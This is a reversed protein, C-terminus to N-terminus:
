RTTGTKADGDKLALDDNADSPLNAVVIEYRERLREYARRNAQERQESLYDGKVRQRVAGFEQLSAPKVHTVYVLHVGYGSAIPGQWAGPELDTIQEAFRSGLTRSIQDPSQGSYERYLMFRDGLNAGGDAAVREARLQELARQADTHAQEGRRDTSFYIHNFSVRAPEQYRDRHSAFYERLTAEPPEAPVAIDAVLFDMKQVMRRRVIIDGKDLGMALAERYLVEERIHDAVLRELEQATPYRQWQKAWQDQLVQIDEATLEIRDGTRSADSDGGVLGYLLFLLAGISLFHVLPERPLSRIKEM